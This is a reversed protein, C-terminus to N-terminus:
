MVEVVGAGAALVSGAALVAALAALMAVAATVVLRRVMSYRLMAAGTGAGPVATM